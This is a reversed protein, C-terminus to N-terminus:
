AQIYHPVHNHLLLFYMSDYCRFNYINSRRMKYGLVEWPGLKKARSLMKHTILVENHIGDSLGASFCAPLSATHEKDDRQPYQSLASM